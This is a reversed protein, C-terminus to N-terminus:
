TKKWFAGGGDIPVIKNQISHAGCYDEVAQKCAPIAYDDIIAYGGPSLKPYLSKLADMTSEYMDGDLRMVALKGIPAAPLTDKFWGKLFVVQDDLLGYKEFNAKVTELPVVLSRALFFLSSKDAPYKRKNPFPLGRFSDAVWVKRDTMGHAKLVGRMFICAGGRWVGTEILDGPVNNELVDEVCRQLHSMRKLGIMSHGIVPWDDGSERKAPDVKRPVTIRIGTLTTLVYSIKRPLLPKVEDDMYLWNVLARKLLDLYLDKTYEDSV